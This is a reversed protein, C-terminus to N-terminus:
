FAFPLIRTHFIMWGSSHKIFPVYLNCCCTVVYNLLLASGTANKYRITTFISYRFSRNILTLFINSFLLAMIFIATRVFDIDEGNHMYLLLWYWLCGATIGLGSYYKDIISSTVSLHQDNAMHLMTIAGHTWKWLHYFLPPAWLRSWFIVHTPSFIDTYKWAFLLPLTVILIIPIHISVIYQIAKKLTTMYKEEFEVVETM